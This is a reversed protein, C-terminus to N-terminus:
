PFDGGIEGPPGDRLQSWLFNAYLLTADPQNFIAWHNANFQALGATVETGSSHTSNASYPTSVPDLGRLELGAIDRELFSDILPLRGAVALAESTDAPTQADNLGETLLVSAPTGPSEAIWLPAYNMPDSPEVITQILSVLPHLDFLETTSPAALATLMADRIVLPDERQMVTMSVGAGAGSLVWANIDEAFPLILAGTIGGQSHGLFYINEPDIKLAPYEEALAGGAGLQERVFRALSLTDLAGQRFMSIGSHPNFYNFSYLSVAIDNGDPWRDGHIPQPIGISLFGRAAALKAPPNQGGSLHSYRDGGTGHAHLVVPWGSEPQEFGANPKSIAFPIREEWQPIPEGDEFIFGGGVESYPIDGAQFNLAQYSSTYISYDSTFPGDDETLKTLGEAQNWSPLSEHAEVSAALQALERTPHQTTFVTAASITAVSDSGLWDQNEDLFSALPAYAAQLNSEESDGSLLDVLQSPAEVRAGEEDLMSAIVAYTTEARLPFGWWPAIILTNPALYPDLSDAGVWRIQAPICTGQHPSDPDVDVIRIPGDCRQARDAEAQGWEPVELSDDFSFWAGVNLGFGEVETTLFTLYESLQESETPNPFDSFDPHAGGGTESSITRADNPM